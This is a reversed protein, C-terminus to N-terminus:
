TYSARMKLWVVNFSILNIPVFFNCGGKQNKINQHHLDILLHTLLHAVSSSCVGICVIKGSVM